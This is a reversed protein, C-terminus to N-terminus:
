VKTLYVISMSSPTPGLPPIENVVLSTTDLTYTYYDDELQILGNVDLMIIDHIPKSTNYQYVGDIFPITDKHLSLYTGDVGIFDSDYSYVVRIVSDLPPPTNFIINNSNGNHIFDIGKSQIMGNLEVYFLNNIKRQTRFTTTSGDGLFRETNIEVNNKIVKKIKSASGRNDLMPEVMVLTRDIAPTIEFEEEDILFGQLQISYVQQYYRRGETTDIQSQDSISELVLPIYHGKVITYAQRSTFKQMVKKNFSNLERMRNCVVVVDFSMDIPVPQPIKYIDAGLRNGNWTPVRRYFFSQRDPITYLLSPNSGYPVEPKRVVVVFPLEINGDEDTFPFTNSMESWRQITLIREIFNVLDGDGSKFLLNEKVFDLMGYDLDEHLVSEPLNTDQEVISDLLEQRRKLLESEPYVNIDKKNKKPLGM